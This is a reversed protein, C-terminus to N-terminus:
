CVDNRLAHQIRILECLHLTAKMGKYIEIIFGFAEQFLVSM